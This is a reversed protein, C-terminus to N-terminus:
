HFNPTPQFETPLTTSGKPHQISMILVLQLGIGMLKLWELRGWYWQLKLIISSLLILKRTRVIVWLDKINAVSGSFTLFLGLTMHHNFLMFLYRLLLIFINLWCVNINNMLTPLWVNLFLYMLKKIQYKWSTKLLKM